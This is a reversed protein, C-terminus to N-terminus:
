LDSFVTVKPLRHWLAAPYMEPDTTATLKHLVTRKENGVVLAIASEIESTLFRPTVTVRVTFPNMSSPVGYAAVWEGAASLVEVYGPFIGATHGDAGMGLTAIVVGDLNTARWTRLFLEYRAALAVATEDRHPRSDFFTAGAARGRKYFDTTMLQAYNNITEDNSWREDLMAIALDPGFVSDPLQDLLALASGGSLLLLVANDSSARLVDELAKVAGSVPDSHTKINM